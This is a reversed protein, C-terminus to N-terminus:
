ILDPQGRRSCSAMSSGAASYSDTVSGVLQFQLGEPLQCHGKAPGVKFFKGHQKRCRELYGHLDYNAIGLLNGLV